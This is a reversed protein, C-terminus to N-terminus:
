QWKTYNLTMQYLKNDNPIIYQWKTYKTAMQYIKHGIPISQPRNTYKEREPINDWSFDPL